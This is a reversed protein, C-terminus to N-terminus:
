QDIVRQEASLQRITDHLAAEAALLSEFAAQLRAKEARLHGLTSQLNDVEGRLREVEAIADDADVRELVHQREEEVSAAELRLRGGKTPVAHLVGRDLRKRVASETVGLRRAAEAVSYTASAAGGPVDGDPRM